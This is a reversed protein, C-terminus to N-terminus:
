AYSILKKLICLTEEVNLNFIFRMYSSSFM